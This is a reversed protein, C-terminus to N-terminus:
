LSVQTLEFCSGKWEVGVKSHAVKQEIKEMIEMVNYDNIGIYIYYMPNNIDEIATFKRMTLTKDHSVATYYALLGLACFFRIVIEERRVKAMIFNSITDRIERIAKPTFHHQWFELYTTVLNYHQDRLWTSQSGFVVGFTELNFKKDYVSYELPEIVLIFSKGINEM